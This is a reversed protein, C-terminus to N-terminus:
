LKSKIWAWYSQTTDVSKKMVSVSMDDAYSFDLNLKCDNSFQALPQSQLTSELVYGNEDRVHQQQLPRGRATVYATRADDITQSPSLLTRRPEIAVGSSLICRMFVHVKECEMEKQKKGIGFKPKREGVIADKVVGPQAASRCCCRCCFCRSWRRRQHM